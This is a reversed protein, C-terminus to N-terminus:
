KVPKIILHRDKGEGVSEAEVGKLDQVALHVIRRQWPSMPELELEEGSSLVQDAWRQAQGTLSEEKQKRWGEVDLIVRKIETEPNKKLMMLSILLQLSELSEGKFGILRGADPTSIEVKLEEEKEEIDYSGELLLLGLINDLIESVKEQM